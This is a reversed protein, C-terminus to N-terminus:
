ADDRLRPLVDAAIRELMAARSRVLEPEGRSPVPLVFEDIGIERYHGVFEEFAGLSALPAAKYALVSRRITKPDRGIGACADDLVSAQRRTEAIAEDLTVRDSGWM